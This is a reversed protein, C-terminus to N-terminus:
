KKPEGLRTGFRKALFLALVLIVIIAGFLELPLEPKELGGAEAATLLDETSAGILVNVVLIPLCGISTGIIFDRLGM